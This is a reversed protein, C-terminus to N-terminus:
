PMECSSALRWIFRHCSYDPRRLRQFVEPGDAVVERLVRRGIGLGEHVPRERGDLHQLRERVRAAGDGLDFVRRETLDDVPAVAHEM